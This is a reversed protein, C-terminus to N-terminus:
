MKAFRAKSRKERKKGRCSGRCVRRRFREARTPPWSQRPPVLCGEVRGFALEAAFEHDFAARLLTNKGRGAHTRARGVLVLRFEQDRQEVVDGVAARKGLLELVGLLEEFQPRCCEPKASRRARDAVSSIQEGIAAGLGDEVAPALVGGAQRSRINEFGFSALSIMARSSAAILFRPRSVSSCRDAGLVPQPQEQGAAHRHEVIGALRLVQDLGMLIDGVAALGLRPHRMHGIVVPQGIQRFRAAKRCASAWIISAQSPVILFERNQRDIEVSQLFDVVHETVRGAVFKQDFHRPPNWFEARPPTTARSEPSSNPKIMSPLCGAAPLASASCSASASAFSNGISPLDTRMPTVVPM